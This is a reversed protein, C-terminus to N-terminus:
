DGGEPNETKNDPSKTKETKNLFDFNYEYRIGDIEKSGGFAM